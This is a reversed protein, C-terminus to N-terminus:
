AAKRIGASRRYATDGAVACPLPGQGCVAGVLDLSLRRCARRVRGTGRNAEVVNWFPVLTTEPPSPFPVQSHPLTPILLNPSNVGGGTPELPSFLDISLEAANCIHPVDMSSPSNKFWFCATSISCSNAPCTRFGMVLRVTCESKTGMRGKERVSWSLSPSYRVTFIRIPAQCFCVRCPILLPPQPTKTAIRCREKQPKPGRSQVPFESADVAWLTIDVFMQDPDSRAQVGRWSGEGGFRTNSISRM